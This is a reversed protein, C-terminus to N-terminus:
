YLQIERLVIPVGSNIKKILDLIKRQQLLGTIVTGEPNYLYFQANKSLNLKDFTIAISTANQAIIKQRYIVDKGKIEKFSKLIPSIDVPKPEASNLRKAINNKLESTDVPPIIIENIEKSSGFIGSPPVHSSDYSNVVVQASSKACIFILSFYILYNKM